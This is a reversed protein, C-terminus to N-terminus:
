KTTVYKRALAQAQTNDKPKDGWMVTTVHGWYEDAPQGKEKKTEPMIVDQSGDTTVWYWEDYVCRAANVIVNKYQGNDGPDGEPNDAVTNNGDIKLGGHASWYYGMGSAGTAGFLVPIKNDASLQAIFRIEADTPLRWRGAPRGAEQYTACRRRLEEKSGVYAKGYSSAIRFVPAIFNKKTGHGITEDTPYYYLIGTNTGNVPYMRNDNSPRVTYRSNASSGLNVGTWETNTLEVDEINEYGALYNNRNLTRPDGIEYKMDDEDSLQTVHIVYMNPNNNSGNHNTLNHVVAFNPKTTTATKVYINDASNELGYNHDEEVYIGPYQTIYLTEEYLGDGKDWDAHKIKIIIECRSYEDWLKGNQKVQPVYYETGDKTKKEWAILPHNFNIISSEHDITCSYLSDICGYQNYTEWATEENATNKASNRGKIKPDITYPHERGVYYSGVFYKKRCYLKGYETTHYGEGKSDLVTNWADFEGNNHNSIPGGNGAIQGTKGWIDVYRFFNVYCEVKTLHSSSFPIELTSTNNM